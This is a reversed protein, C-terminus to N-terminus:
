NGHSISDKPKQIKVFELEMQSLLLFLEQGTAVEKLLYPNQVLYLVGFLGASVDNLAVSASKASEDILLEAMTHQARREVWSKLYPIFQRELLSPKEHLGYNFLFTHFAKLALLNNISVSNGFSLAM